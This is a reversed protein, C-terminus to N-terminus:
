YWIRLFNRGIDLWARPAYLGSAYPFFLIFAITACILLLMMTVNGIKRNMRRIQHLVLGLAVILFPVSAFYHYIYTGRPVMMWPLYQALFGILLFFLSSETGFTLDRIQGEPVRQCTLNRFWGIACIVLAALASFWVVPNGICFISHTFTDNYVYMKTAYYMPKGIVPWEYWPSYFPHDMGLGPTSHYSFMSNQTNWVDRLYETVSSTHKYAFYPIYSILYIILPVAVFFLVCWACLRIFRGAPSPKEAKQGGQQRHRAYLWQGCHVFFIIGLGAGSYIGIWKSAIGLGMFLGSCGLDTLMRSNKEKGIDTQMFRLMFFWSFLIFLVPFSDITAIQTQTLHMCDVAMLICMAAGIATSKTLQKGLLYMGALMAVGVLAGAFRWGFPTMGFLAIGWSMLIKGLPPHSTEYPPTGKLFEYATRAHYIEDFYTSNWWGPQAVLPNDEEPSDKLATPFWLPLAELTDPEDLLAAPDSFLSSDEIAHLRSHIVAPIRQGETDRFIVECLALGIQHATLRVYRGSLWQRAASNYTRKGSEDTFSETLYKWKWCDGQNMEAWSEDSWSIGDSSVAISFDYRSVRAFYLMCFSDREEGLDFTVSEEYETSTWASQPAKTSGLTSFCIVSYVAMVGCLIASDRRNWHLRNDLKEERFLPRFPRSESRGPGLAMGVHIAQFAALINIASLIQALAKTDENLHGHDSGLRISNDLVIGENLFVTASFILLLTIIRRDHHILAALALLFIAPFIYREHMKVGFVYLLIFLLGGAYPLFSMDGNRIYLSLVILFAFAMAATGIWGWSAQLAACLIFWVALLGVLAPELWRMRDNNKWTKFCWLAGYILAFCAMIISLSVPASNGIANWNGNFLYYINATNVTAYPYSALTGAYQNILWGPSQRLGFPLIIVLAVAAAAGLGILIQRRSEKQNIWAFLAAALGLFGLMLAQPKILVSLMYCPLAAEWRGEMAFVAVLLLCLCLVSDMQGWCASNLILLPNFALVACFVAARNVKTGRSVAFRYICWCSILDCLSPIFRFVVRSVAANGPAIWGSILSNLGLIWVYAPPYDCFGSEPYFGAPGHMAMTRGWSTFCNVDVMYGQVFWSLAVRLMLALGLATLLFVSARRRNAEPKLQPQIEERERLLLAALVTYLLCLLILRPWAAAEDSASTEDETDDDYYSITRKQYWLDAIADGPVEEAEALELGDFWVKGRSEGSYGGLRIFLTVSTQDEGTEGYWEIYEWEGDTDFVSESFVYLGEISLNGGRGDEIGDGRIYGSFCYLTEPEVEVTQVFRADNLAINQISVANGGDPSDAESEVSFVSYGEDLLYADTSWGVPMGDPNLEEFSGNELLNEAAATGFLLIMGTIALLLFYRKLFSSVSQVKSM